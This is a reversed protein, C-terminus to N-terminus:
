NPQSGDTLEQDLQPKVWLIIKDIRTQDLRADNTVWAFGREANQSPDVGGATCSDGEPYFFPMCNTNPFSSIGRDSFPARWSNGAKGGTYKGVSIRRSDFLFNLFYADATTGDSYVLTVRLQLPVSFLLDYVRSGKKKELYIDDSWISQWGQDCDVTVMSTPRKRKWVRTSTQTHTQSINWCSDPCKDCMEGWCEPRGYKHCGPASHDFCTAIPRHPAGARVEFIQMSPNTLMLRKRRRACYDYSSLLCLTNETNIIFSHCDGM